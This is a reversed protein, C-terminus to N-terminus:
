GFDGDLVGGSFLRFLAAYDGDRKMLEAHTGEEVIRGANLYILRDARAATTLRHAILLTTRQRMIEDLAETVAKESSADLASTAEDLLLVTPKRVLARAIAVRQMQGGSLRIGREGLETTTRGQMEQAFATAHAAEIAEEIDGDSADARGVRVNDEISGAFLFTHQPVVGMLSRIFATDLTAADVGDFLIQGETPAYFRLLLDAITSKGAGSPGVIALSTGPEITFSVDELAVTGDGYTFSVNRFEVKGTPNDIKASGGISASNEDPVDLVERHIRDAAAEVSAVTNSLNAMTRFGQNIVDMAFALKVVIGANMQGRAALWGSLVLFGALAGAGLFEVMPRLKAFVVAATMQSRYSTEILRGYEDKTREEVGFAKVVRTGQLVENTTAALDALDDQVRRQAKRMLRSNRQTVLVMLPMAAVAVLALMPQTFLILGFASIAKIPGDISDRIVNIASQYINVDSNLVSQVAGARRENFYSVPLRMLKAFLKKRLESTLRNSAVALYYLQARVLFYRAGFIAITLLALKALLLQDAQFATTRAPEGLGRAGAIATIANTANQTLQITSAYLM